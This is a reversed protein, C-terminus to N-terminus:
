PGSIPGGSAVLRWQRGPGRRLQWRGCRAIEGLDDLMARVVAVAESDEVDAATAPVLFRLQVRPQPRESAPHAIDLARDEVQHTRAIIREATPLVDEPAVGALVGVIDVTIRYSPM